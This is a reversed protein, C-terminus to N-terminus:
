ARTWAACDCAVCFGRVSYLPAERRGPEVQVSGPQWHLGPRRRPSILSLLRLGPVTQVRDAHGQM